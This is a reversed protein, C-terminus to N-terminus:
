GFTDQNIRFFALLLMPFYGMQKLTINGNKQITAYVLMLDNIVHGWIGYKGDTTNRNLMNPIYDAQVSSSKHEDKYVKRYQKCVFDIFKSRTM